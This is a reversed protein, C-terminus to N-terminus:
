SAAESFTKKDVTPNIAKSNVVYMHNNRFGQLYGMETLINHIFELEKNITDDLYIERSRCTLSRHRNHHVSVFNSFQTYQCILPNEYM